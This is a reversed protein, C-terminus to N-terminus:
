RGVGWLGSNNGADVGTGSAVNCALSLALPVWGWVGGSDLGGGLTGGGTNLSVSGDLLGSGVGLALM